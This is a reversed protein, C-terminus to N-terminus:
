CSSRRQRTALTPCSAGLAFISAVLSNRSVYFDDKIRMATPVALLLMTIAAAETVIPERANLLVPRTCIATHAVQLKTGAVSGM